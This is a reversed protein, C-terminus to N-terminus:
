WIRVREEPALYLKQDPRVDFVDYFADINRVIGNVRFEAPSHPDVVIRRRLEEPRYKRRWIQAYGLFFRQLGTMGDIVPAPKGDLALQYATLAVNVGGLDGINEGLTFRGNVHIGPLPEYRDYQAALAKGRKDFERRDAKTWWNNLNGDGDFRSGSDDFAHSLEHGIVAGIGGYNVADDAKANFFPPQLIAAPFVIENMLPNYYANVTQPTMLWEDRDVPKGLKDLMRQYRWQAARMMNGVLDGRDVSLTSYDKWKDPYGIKTRVKGLKELARQKTEDSMWDLKRIRLAFSRKLNNVLTVMREKAEPQFHERVYIKGVLEGLVGSTAGVARKWRPRPKPVGRLTRQHFDFSLDDFQKSLQSAFSDVIQFTMVDKWVDLPVETILRDVAALFSPQRVVFHTEKDWGAIRAYRKWGFNGLMEALEEASKKNYTKLPNRNEVRSWQARAIRTETDLVRDAIRQPDDAGIAEMLAVIYARYKKRIEREKDGDKLYYDRDPLTTGAQSIYVVYHGSQRADANVFCGFLGAVGQRPLRALLEVFQERTEIHRVEDLLPQLPKIGLRELRETDMMSAYFDGVKQEDSGPVRDTRESLEEMIEHLAAIAEEQLITFSGFDSKDEPITTKDLWKKNVHRFFDDGPAITPDILTRDIGSIPRAPEDATAVPSRGATLLVLPTILASALLRGPIRAAPSRSAVM